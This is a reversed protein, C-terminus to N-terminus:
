RCMYCPNSCCPGGCSLCLRLMPCCKNSSWSCKPRSFCCCSPSRNSDCPGCTIRLLCNGKRCLRNPKSCDSCHYCVWKRLSCNPCCSPCNTSSDHICCRPLKLDPPCLSYCCCIWSFNLWSIGCLWKWFGRSTSRKPFTPILPDSNGLSFDVVEKCCRSAPQSGQLTKLEEQLFGIERELMQVKAFERRKGYLDPYEPPSRPCPQPLSAVVAGGGGGGVAM